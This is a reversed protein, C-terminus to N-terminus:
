DGLKNKLYALRSSYARHDPALKLAQKIDKLARQDNGLRENVLSRDYYARHSPESGIARNLDALAKPYDHRIRWIEARLRLTEARNPMFKLSRQYMALAADLKGKAQQINGKKAYLIASISPLTDSELLALARDYDKDAADLQKLDRKADGRLQYALVLDDPHLHKRGMIALNLKKLACRPDDLKLCSYGARLNDRAGALARGPCFVLAMACALVGLLLVKNGVAAM